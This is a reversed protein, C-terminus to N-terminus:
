KRAKKALRRADKKADRAAKKTARAKAKAAKKAARATAKEAKRKARAAAKVKKALAKKDFIPTTKKPVTKKKPLQTDLKGPLAALSKSKKGETKTDEQGSGRTPSGTRTQKKAVPKKGQSALTPTKPKPATKNAQSGKRFDYTSGHKTATAGTKKGAPDHGSTPTKGSLKPTPGLTTKKAPGVTTKKSPMIM